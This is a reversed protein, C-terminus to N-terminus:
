ITANAALELRLLSTPTLFGAADLAEEIQQKLRANRQQLDRWGRVEPDDPPLHDVRAYADHTDVSWVWVASPRADMLQVRLKIHPFHESGLRFSYGLLGNKRSSLDEAIGAAVPAPPLFEELPAAVPLDYYVRKKPDITDPGGPYAIVMFLHCARGLLETNLDNMTIREDHPKRLTENLRSLSFIPCPLLIKM